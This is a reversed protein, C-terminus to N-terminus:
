WQKIKTPEQTVQLIEHRLKIHKRLGFNETYDDLYKVLQTNHCFNPLDKSPPFDSLATSEKSTNIITSRTVSPLGDVDEEHYRWIGGTWGAREFCTASFGAQFCEKIAVLGSAGAGIICVEKTMNM